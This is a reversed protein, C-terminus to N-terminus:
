RSQDDLDDEAKDVQSIQQELLSHAAKAQKVPEDAEQVERIAEAERVELVDKVAKKPYCRGEFRMEEDACGDVHRLPEGEGEPEELKEDPDDGVPPAQIVIPDEPIRSDM